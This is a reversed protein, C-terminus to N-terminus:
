NWTLLQNIRKTMCDSRALAAAMEARTMQGQPYFDGMLDALIKTQKAISIERIAWHRAAVDQYPREDIVDPLVYKSFRVVMSIGEARTVPSRARFKDGPYGVVIEANYGAQVYPAIEDSPEIDIFPLSVPEATPINGVRLLDILFSVRSINDQPFFAGSSDGSVIGLTALQEIYNKAWSDNIDSFTILSLIRVTQIGILKKGEGYAEITVLNKGPALRLKLTFSGAEVSATASGIRIKRVGPKLAKGSLVVEQTRLTAENSPVTEFLKMEPPVVAKKNKQGVGYTLSFYHTDNDSLGDYTHYAYDFRLDELNLGVGATLNNSLGKGGIDQDIGARLGVLDMPTWELGCHILSQRNRSTIFMDNDINLQLNKNLNLCCGLKLTAPLSEEVGNKWIIKGGMSAPLANQAVAGLKLVSNPRYTVGLDVDHGAGTGDTIGPGTIDYAYIKLTAGASLGAYGKGFSFLLARNNNSYTSSENSPITFSIGSGVYGIGFTGMEVPIAAGLNMYDYENIFKGQMTTLQLNTVSSLAAPNIFIGSIDDAMGVYARGMGLIRAGVGIRMPDNAVNEAAGLASFVTAVIGIVLLLNQPASKV